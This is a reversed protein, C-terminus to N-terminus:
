ETPLMDPAFENLHLRDLTSHIPIGASDWGREAYYTEIATALWSPNLISDTDATELVRAPLWDDSASWGHAINFLKKLTNIREGSM